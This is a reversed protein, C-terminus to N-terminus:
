SLALCAFVDNNKGWVSRIVGSGVFLNLDYQEKAQPFPRAPHSRKPVSSTEAALLLQHQVLPPVIEELEVQETVNEIVLIEQATKKVVATKKTTTKKAPM